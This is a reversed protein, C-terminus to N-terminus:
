EIRQMLTPLLTTTEDRASCCRCRGAVVAVPFIRRHFSLAEVDVNIMDRRNAL